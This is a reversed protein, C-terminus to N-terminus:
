AEEAIILSTILNYLRAVSSLLKLCVGSTGPIYIIYAWKWYRIHASGSLSTFVSTLQINISDREFSPLLKFMSTLITDPTGYDPTQRAMIQM